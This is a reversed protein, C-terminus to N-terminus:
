KNNNNENLKKIYNKYKEDNNKFNMNNKDYDVFCKIGDAYTYDEYYYNRENKLITKYMTEYDSYAFKKAGCNEIIDRAFLQKTTDNILPKKPLFDEDKIIKEGRVFM